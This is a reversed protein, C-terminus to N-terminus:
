RSRSRPGPCPSSSTSHSSSSASDPSAWAGPQDAPEHPQAPGTGRLPAMARTHYSLGTRPSNDHGRLAGAQSWDESVLPSPTGSSPERPGLEPYHRELGRRDHVELDFVEGAWVSAESPFALRARLGRRGALDGSTGLTAGAAAFHVGANVRIPGKNTNVMFGPIDVDDRKSLLVAFAMSVNKTFTGNTISVQTSQGQYDLRLGDIKPRSPSTRLRATTSSSSCRPLGRRRAPARRGAPDRHISQASATLAAM